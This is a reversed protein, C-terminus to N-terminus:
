CEALQSCCSCLSPDDHEQRQSVGGKLSCAVKDLCFLRPMNGRGVVATRLTTEGELAKAEYDVNEDIGLGEAEADPATHTPDAM